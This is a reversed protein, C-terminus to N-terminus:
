PYGASFIDVPEPLSNGAIALFKEQSALTANTLLGKKFLSVFLAAAHAQCNISKEPNFVIDTFAQFELLREALDLQRWLANLYLWNYFAHRPLLGWQHEYFQFGVIRGSSNLRPDRKADRSGLNLIDTYPGGNEFVKSAQYACEVSFEKGKPTRIILNFASLNVGLAIPSKRSIDLVLEIGLSKRASEHLSSISKQVQSISMGPFWEFEVNEVRVPTPGILDPIYVPRKAM